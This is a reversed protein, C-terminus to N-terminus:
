GKAATALGRYLRRATGAFIKAQATAPLDALVGRALELLEPLPQEAAPCNSGWAIRDAGFAEVVPGLFDAAAPGADRLPELSRHTLKLHLGPHRALKAVEAGARAPSGAIDPYGLHDLLVRVGGFRELVSELQPTAPGLRMQLCVTVDLEGAARWFGYTEPAAFWEGQVPVTSGSTFLRVGALGGAGVAAALRDPADERLPDFTGVAVLRDPWRRRSDLVYSNDYGYATTAQVLVAQGIGTADMRAVLEEATVPRTTAWGSQTGGLPARPYGTLDDSIIHCHADVVDV